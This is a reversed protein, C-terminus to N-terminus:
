IISHQKYLLQKVIEDHLIQNVFKYFYIHNKYNNLELPNSLTRKTTSKIKIKRSFSFVFSFSKTALALFKAVNSRKM